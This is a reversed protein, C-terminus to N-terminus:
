LFRCVAHGRRGPHFARLFRRKQPATIATAPDPQHRLRRGQTAIHGQHHAAHVNGWNADSAV